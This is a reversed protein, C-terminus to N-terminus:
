TKWIGFTFEQLYHVSFAGQAKMPAPNSPSRRRSPPKLRYLAM